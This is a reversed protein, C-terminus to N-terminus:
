AVLEIEEHVMDLAINFLHLVDKHETKCRDNFLWILGPNEPDILKIAQRLFWFEEPLQGRKLDSKVSGSEDLTQPPAATSVGVEAVAGVICFRKDYHRVECWGNWLRETEFAESFSGKCWHKQDILLAKARLLNDYTVEPSQRYAM